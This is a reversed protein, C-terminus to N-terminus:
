GELYAINDAVNSPLGLTDLVHSIQGRHHIQHTFLFAFAAGAEASRFSGASDQYDFTEGCRAPPFEEFWAIIREDVFVRDQSLSAFDDHLDHNWSLNPPDLGPDSLVMSNPSLARFRRLWNIDTVILHNLIGHISGFWSGVDRRRGKETLQSLVAFMERNARANYRAQHQFLQSLDNTM